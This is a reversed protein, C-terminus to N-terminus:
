AASPILSLRPAYAVIADSMEEASISGEIVQQKLTAYLPHASPDFGELRVNAEARAFSQELQEQTEAFVMPPMFGGCDQWKM